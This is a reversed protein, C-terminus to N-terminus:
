KKKRENWRRDWGARRDMCGKDTYPPGFIM